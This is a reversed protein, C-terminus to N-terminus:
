AGNGPSTAVADLIEDVLAAAAGAPNQFPGDIPLSVMGKGLSFAVAEALDTATVARIGVGSTVFPM